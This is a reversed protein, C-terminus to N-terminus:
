QVMASSKWTNKKKKKSKDNKKAKVAERVMKREQKCTKLGRRRM